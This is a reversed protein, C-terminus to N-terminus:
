ESIESWNKVETWNKGMSPGRDAPPTLFCGRMVDWCTMDKLRAITVGKLKQQAAMFDKPLPISAM